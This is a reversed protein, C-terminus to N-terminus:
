TTRQDRRGSIFNYSHKCVMVRWNIRSGTFSDTVYSDSFGGSLVGTPFGVMPIQVGANSGRPAPGHFHAGTTGGSLGNFTLDFALINTVDDYTGTMNGLATTLVPPVEQSGAITIDITFVTASSDKQIFLTAVFILITVIFIKNLNKM